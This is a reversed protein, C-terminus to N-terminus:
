VMTTHIVATNGHQTSPQQSIKVREEPPPRENFIDRGTM